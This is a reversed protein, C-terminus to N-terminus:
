VLFPRTNKRIREKTERIFTFTGKRTEKKPLVTKPIVTIEPTILVLKEIGNEIVVTKPPEVTFNKLRSWFCPRIKESKNKQREAHVKVTTESTKVKKDIVTNKDNKSASEM